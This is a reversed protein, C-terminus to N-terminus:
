ECVGKAEAGVYSSQPGNAMDAVMLSGGERGIMGCAAMFRHEVLGFATVEARGAGEQALVPCTPRRGPGVVLPLAGRAPAFIASLRAREQFDLQAAHGALPIVALGDRRATLDFRGDWVKSQGMQLGLPQVPTRRFEGPERTVLLDRGAQLRAGGLTAVFSEGGELRRLISSAREPRGLDQRGAACAAAIQLLRLAGAAGPEFALRSVAVAGWPTVSCRGTLAPPDRDDEVRAHNAPQDGQGLSARARARPSGMDENAPDDIWSLGQGILWARLDARRQALLPRFHFLGRGQPWVPSPSWERLVGLRQGTARMLANELQDDLTHGVLIVGAGAQRAAEAILGHRAARAAAPVGAAPKDGEWKLARFGLGLREATQAARRTWDGSQSQLGHDVTLALVSRGAGQAWTKALVLLALSDGGGSFAVALPAHSQRDLRRDFAELAQRM